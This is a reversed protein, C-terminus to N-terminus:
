GFRSIQAQEPFRSMAEEVTMQHAPAWKELFSRRRGTMVAGPVISNVQMGDKVGQEAFARALAIIAANIPPL